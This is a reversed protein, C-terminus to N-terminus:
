GDHERAPDDVQRPVGDRAQGQQRGRPAMRVPVAVAQRVDEASGAAAGRALHHEDLRGAEAVM